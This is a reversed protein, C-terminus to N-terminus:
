HVPARPIWDHRAALRALEVGNRVGLKQHARLRYTSVTKRNVDLAAAIEWIEKGDLTLSVVELERASLREFPLSENQTFTQAVLSEAVDASVYRKGARTLGIAELLEELRCRQSLYAHAGANLTQRPIAGDAAWSLVILNCNPLTRSLQRCIEIGNLAPTHLGLLVLDPELLEALSAVNDLVGTSAVVQLGATNNLVHELGVRFVEHDDALLIRVPKTTEAKDCFGNVESSPKFKSNM